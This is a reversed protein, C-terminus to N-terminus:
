SGTAPGASGEPKEDNALLAQGNCVSVLPEKSKDFSSGTVKRTWIRDVAALLNYSCFQLKKKNVQVLLM